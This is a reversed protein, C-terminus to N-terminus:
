NESPREIHDIVLTEVQSKQTDLKLGLSPLASLVEDGPESPAFKLIIDYRGTLGTKDQIAGGRNWGVLFSAFNAMSTGYFGLGDQRTVEIGGDPMRFGDSPKATPDTQKFKPGGKAVVLSSVSAERVERHVVLRFREALLSQLMSQLMQKQAVPNQWAPRDADAVRADVDYRENTVWEPLGKVQDPAYALAGGIQPTYATLLLGLMSWHNRYGDATPGLQQVDELQPPTKRQRISVVDFAFTKTPAPVSAAAASSAVTTATAHSQNTATQALAASAFVLAVALIRVNM